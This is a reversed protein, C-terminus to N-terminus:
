TNSTLAHTGGITGSHSEGLPVDTRVDTQLFTPTIYFM